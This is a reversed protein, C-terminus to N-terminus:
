ILMAQYVVLSLKLGCFYWFLWYLSFGLFFERERVLLYNWTLLELM